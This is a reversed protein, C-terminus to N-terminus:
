IVVRGMAVKALVVVLHIVVGRHHRRQQKRIPGVVLVLRRRRRHGWRELIGHVDTWCRYEACLTGFVLDKWVAFTRLNGLGDWLGKRDLGQRHYQARPEKNPGPGKM